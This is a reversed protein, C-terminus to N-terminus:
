LLKHKGLIGGLRKKVMRPKEKTLFDELSAMFDQDTSNSIKQKFDVM